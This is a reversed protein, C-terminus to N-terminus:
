RRLDGDVYIWRGDRREFRSVERMAHERGGLRTRAVFEVTAHEDDHVVHRKVELGLWTLGRPDAQITSPRTEPAWTDLLYEALGMTFATYRSRMLAEADPAPAGAHWPGCCDRYDRGSGCPCPTKV